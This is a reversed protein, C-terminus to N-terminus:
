LHFSASPIPTVAVRLTHPVRWADQSQRAREAACRTENWPREKRFHVIEILFSPLLLAGIRIFGLSSLTGNCSGRDRSFAAWFLGMTLGADGAAMGTEVMSVLHYWVCSTSSFFPSVNLPCRTFQSLKIFM